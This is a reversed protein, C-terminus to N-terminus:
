CLGIERFLLNTRMRGQIECSELGGKEEWRVKVGRGSELATRWFEDVCLYAEVKSNSLVREPVEPSVQCDPLCKDIVLDLM